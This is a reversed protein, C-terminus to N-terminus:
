LRRPPGTRPKAFRGIGGVNPQVAAAPAVAKAAGVPLLLRPSRGQYGALGFMVVGLLLLVSVALIRGARGPGGTGVPTVASASRPAAAPAGSAQYSPGGGPAASAPAATPAGPSSALAPAAAPEAPSGASGAAGPSAASGPSSLAGPLAVASGPDPSAVSVAAGTAGTVPSAGSGTGAPPNTGSGAASSDQAVTTPPASPSGSVVVSRTTPATYQVSFPATTGPTPVIAVEVSSGSAWGAPIAFSDQGDSDVADVEKGKTCDYGPASSAAQAGGPHWSSTTPCASVATTGVASNPVQVLTLNVSASTPDLDAPIGVRVAAFALPGQVGSSVQLQGSSATAPASVPGAAAENWWGSQVSAAPDASAAGTALLLGGSGVAAVGLARLLLRRGKVRRGKVRCGKM